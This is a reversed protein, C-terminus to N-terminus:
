RVNWASLRGDPRRELALTMGFCDSLTAATLAEEIPGSAVVAGDRLLLAHTIGDPVEDVHHTVLVMPPGEPTAALDGLAHVLQERGGLDLRAAPEDLLVVGPDNMLTRALFVRQQEGSSLTGLPRDAFRGVGMRALCGVAQERDEATYRHWWPELAAYRATMVTDAASLELRFQAALAASAYGVRRRLQRVDTRGLQEGLVRVSGSSPHDYMAAIRLLTTKGSGNAGLVLWHTGTDVHLTIDDLIRRGSREVVIRDLELPAAPQPTATPSMQPSTRAPRLVADDSRNGTVSGYRVIRETVM